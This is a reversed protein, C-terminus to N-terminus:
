WEDPRYELNAPSDLGLRFEGENLNSIILFSQSGISSQHFSASTLMRLTPEKVKDLWGDEQRKVWLGEPLQFSRESMWRIPFVNASSHISICALPKILSKYPKLHLKAILQHALLVAEDASMSSRKIADIFIIGINTCTESCRDVLQHYSRRAILTAIWHRRRSAVFTLDISTESSLHYTM